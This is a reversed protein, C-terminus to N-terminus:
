IEQICSTTRKRLGLGFQEQLMNTGLGLQEFGRQLAEIEHDAVLQCHANAGTRAEDVNEYM